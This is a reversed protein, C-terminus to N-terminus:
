DKVLLKGINDLGPVRTYVPPKVKHSERDLVTIRIYLEHLLDAFVDLNASYNSVVMDRYIGDSLGQPPGEGASAPLRSLTGPASAGVINRINPVIERRVRCIFTAMSLIREYLEWFTYGQMRDYSTQSTLRDIREWDARDLILQSFAQRMFRNNINTKYHEGIQDIFMNVQTDIVPM